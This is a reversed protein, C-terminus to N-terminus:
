EAYVYWNTVPRKVADYFGYLRSLPTGAPAYLLITDSRNRSATAFAAAEAVSKMAHEHPTLKPDDGAVNWDEDIETVTVSGDAAFRVELPQVLRERRDRWKELPLFARYFLRDRGNVKVRPSDVLSLAQAAPVAEAVTLEPAFHALVEVPGKESEKKLECLARVSEGPRFTVDLRRPVTEGDWSLTFTRRTGKELTEVPTYRGYVQGQPFAGDFLILAQPVDYTAFVALPMNTAADPSGDPARKGGTYVFPELPVPTGDRRSAVLKDLAPELTLPVGSPWLRCAAADLPRGRPIGASEIRRAFAAVDEDLEFLAEYARDSGKGAFVFEVPTSTDIGTATATFTVSRVAALLLPLIM